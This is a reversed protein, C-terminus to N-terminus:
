AFLGGDAAGSQEVPIDATGATFDGGGYVGFIFASDITGAVFDGGDGRGVEVTGGGGTANFTISKPTSLADTEITVNTGAIFRIPEEGTPDLTTQGDVLWPAFTSGLEVFAEGNGLDTVTFGNATNFTVTDVNSIVNAPTGVATDRQQVTLAYPTPDSAPQWEGDAANWALKQGDSPPATSTDVDSLADISTTGLDASLAVLVGGEVIYLKDEDKAYVLEGELLGALSTDLAAKLGRAVRVPVRNAPLAM